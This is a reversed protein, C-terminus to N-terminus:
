YHEPLVTSLSEHPLLVITYFTYSYKYFFHFFSCSLYSTHKIIIILVTNVVVLFTPHGYYIRILHLVVALVLFSSPYHTIHIIESRHLYQGATWSFLQMPQADFLVTFFPHFYVIPIHLVPKSFSYTRVVLRQIIKYHICVHLTATLLALGFLPNEYHVGIYNNYIKM